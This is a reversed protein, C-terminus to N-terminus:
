SRKTILTGPRLVRAPYKRSRNLGKRTDSEYGYEPAAATRTSSSSKFIRRSCAIPGNGGSEQRNKGTPQQGLNVLFNCRSHPLCEEHQLLSSPSRGTGASSLTCLSVNGHGTKQPGLFFVDSRRCAESM